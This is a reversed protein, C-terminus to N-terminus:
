QPCYDWFGQTRSPDTYYMGSVPAAGAYGTAAAAAVFGVAVGGRRAVARVDVIDANSMKTQAGLLVSTGANMASARDPM